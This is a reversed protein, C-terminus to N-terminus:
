DKNDYDYDDENQNEYFDKNRIMGAYKEEMADRGKGFTFGFISNDKARNATKISQRIHKALIPTDPYKDNYADIKNDIETTDGDVDEIKRYEGLLKTRKDAAFSVDTKASRAIEEGQMVKYPSIGFAQKGIDLPTFSEKPIVQDGKANIKGETAFRGAIMVNKVLASPVLKEIARETDGSAFLKLGDSVNVVLSGAAGGFMEFLRDKVSVDLTDHTESEHVMPIIEHAGLRQSLKLDLITSLPGDLLINIFSEDVNKAELYSRFDAKYNHWEDDSLLDKILDNAGGILGAAPLGLAGAFLWHMAMLGTLHKVAEKREYGDKSALNLASKAMSFLLKAGYQQFQWVVRAMDGKTLTARGTSGFDGMDLYVSDIAKEVAQDHTMGSKMNAIYSATAVIQRSASEMEAFPQSMIAMLNTAKQMVNEHAGTTRGKGSFAEAHVGSTIIGEKLFSQCAAEVDFQDAHTANGILKKYGNNKTKYKKAGREMNYFGVGKGIGSSVYLNAAATMASHALVYGHTKGISPIGQLAISSLQLLTSAPSTLYYSFAAGTAFNSIPGTLKPHLADLIERNFAEYYSNAKVVDGEFTGRMIEGHLNKKIDLLGTSISRGLKIRPLQRSMNMAYSDFARFVDNSYGATGKRHIFQKGISQDSKGMLHMQFVFDKLGEMSEEPTGEFSKDIQAYLDMMSKNDGIIEKNFQKIDPVIYGKVKVDTLFKKAESSTDFKTFKKILKGTDPDLDGDTYAVGYKGFRMLPFYDGKGKINKVQERFVTLQKDIIDPAIGSTNISHEYAEIYRGMSDKYYKAMEGYVRKGEPNLKAYNIQLAQLRHILQAFGKPRDAELKAIKDNINGEEGVKARPSVGLLTTESQVDGLLKLQRHNKKIYPNFSNKRMNAMETLMKDRMGSLERTVKLVAKGGKLYKAGLEYIGSASFINLFGPLVKDSASDAQQKFSGLEDEFTQKVSYRIDDNEASFAGTNGTASKIQNPNFAAWTIAAPFKSSVNTREVIQIGDYGLVTLLEKTVVKAQDKGWYESVGRVANQDRYMSKFYDLFEVRTNLIKDKDLKNPASKIAESVFETPSFRRNDHDLNFPTNLKVFVSSITPSTRNEAYGSALKKDESVWTFEKNVDPNEEGYGRYTVLPEGNEDVVKSANEPDNEWDGFWKKFEPTRVQAHQMSNLKSPKGNPALLKEKSFATEKRATREATKSERRMSTVALQRADAETLKINAGFTTRMFNRIAAIIRRVLPLHRSNEVLYALTEEARLNAPTNKPVAARAADFEKGQNTMAQNKVDEWMKAGLMKEMGAHVGVEHLAVNQMSEPTLKNAVYHTVGDATTMGQVNAPHNEGPLTAQTDHLVAKGSEVLRRMEPTLTKSLSEITNGTTANSPAVSYAQKGKVKTKTTAVGATTKATSEMKALTLAIRDKLETAKVATETGKNAPLGIIKNLNNIVQQAAKPNSLVNITSTPTPVLKGVVSQKGVGLNLIDAQSILQESPSIYNKPKYEKSLVNILAQQKAPALKNIGEVVRKDTLLLAGSTDVLNGLELGTIGAAKIHEPTVVADDNAGVEAHVATKFDTVKQQTTPTIGLLTDPHPGGEIPTTLGRLMSTLNAVELRKAEDEIDTQKPETGYDKVEETLPTEKITGTKGGFLDAQGGQKTKALVKSMEGTAKDMTAVQKVVDEQTPEAGYNKVPEAVPEEKLKGKRGGFLDAQAGQKTKALLASMEKTAASEIGAAVLDEHQKEAIKRWEDADARVKAEAPTLVEGETNVPLTEDTSLDGRTPKYGFIDEQRKNRSEVEENLLGMNFKLYDNKEKIAIKNAEAASTVPKNNAGKLAGNLFENRIDNYRAESQKNIELKQADIDLDQEQTPGEYGKAFEDELQTQSLDDIGEGPKRAKMRATEAVPTPSVQETAQKTDVPPIASPGYDEDSKEEIKVGVKSRLLEFAEQTSMGENNQALARAMAPGYNRFKEADLEVDGDAVAIAENALEERAQKSDSAAVYAQPAGMVTAAGGGAAAGGAVSEKVDAFAEDGTLPKGAAYRELERQIGETPGETIVGRGAHKLLEGGFTKNIEQAAADKVARSMGPIKMGLTFRDAILDLTGAAISPLITREPDLEGATKAADMQEDIMSGFEQVIAAVIGAPIALTGGSVAGAALGAALPGATAPASEVIKEGVYGPIKKLAAWVGDNKATDEIEQFSTAKPGKAEAEAVLKDQAHQEELRKQVDEDYGLLSEIGTVVGQGSQKVGEIGRGLAAGFTGQQEVPKAQAAQTDREKKDQLYWAVEDPTLGEIKPLDSPPGVAVDELYKGRKGMVSNAYNKNEYPDKSGYYKGLAWIEKQGQDLAPNAKDILGRLKHAGAHINYEPDSALLAPDYEPNWKPIMQTLGLATSTGPNLPNGNKDFQRFGSEQEILSNLLDQSVGHRKSAEQIFGAYEKSSM